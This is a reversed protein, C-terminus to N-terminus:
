NIPLFSHRTSLSPRRTSPSPHFSQTSLSHCASVQCLELRNNWLTPSPPSPHHAFLFAEGDELESLMHLRHPHTYTRGNYNYAFDQNNLIFEQENLMFGQESLMFKHKKEMMLVVLLVARLRLCRVINEYAQHYSGTDMSVGSLPVMQRLRVSTVTEKFSEQDQLGMLRDIYGNAIVVVQVFMVIMVSVVIMVLMTVVIIEMVVEVAMEM